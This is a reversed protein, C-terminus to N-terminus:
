QQVITFIPRSYASDFYAQQAQTPLITASILLLALLFYAFDHREHIYHTQSNTALRVLNSLAPFADKLSQDTAFKLATSGITQCRLPKLM